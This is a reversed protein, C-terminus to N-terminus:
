EPPMGCDWGRAAAEAGDRALTAIRAFGSARRRVGAPCNGVSNHQQRGHPYSSSKWRWGRRSPIGRKRVPGAARLLAAVTERRRQIRKGPEKRFQLSLGGSDM